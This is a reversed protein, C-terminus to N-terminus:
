RTLPREGASRACRALDSFGEEQIPLAKGDGEVEVEAGAQRESEWRKGNSGM